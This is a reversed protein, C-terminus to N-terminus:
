KPRRLTLRGELCQKLLRRVGRSRAGKPLWEDWAAEGSRVKRLREVRESADRLRTRLLLVGHDCQGGIGQPGEEVESSPDAHLTALGRTVLDEVFVAGEVVHEHVGGAGGGHGEAARGPRIGASLGV